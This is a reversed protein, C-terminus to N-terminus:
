GVFLGINGKLFELHDKQQEKTSQIFSKIEEQLQTKDEPSIVYYDDVNDVGLTEPIDVIDDENLHGTMIRSYVDAYHDQAVSGYITPFIKEILEERYDMNDAVGEHEKYYEILTQSMGGEECKLDKESDQDTDQDLEKCLKYKEAMSSLLMNLEYVFEQDEDYHEEIHLIDHALYEPTKSFQFIGSRPEGTGVNYIFLIIENWDIKDPSTQQAKAVPESIKPKMESFVEFFKDIKIFENSMAADFVDAHGFDKMNEFTKIDIGFVKALQKKHEKSMKDFDMGILVVNSGINNFAEIWESTDELNVDYRGRPRFQDNDKLQKLSLPKNEESPSFNFAGDPIVPAAIKHLLQAEKTLNNKNLYKILKIIKNM